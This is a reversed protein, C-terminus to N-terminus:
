AVRRFKQLWPLKHPAYLADAGASVPLEGVYLDGRSDVCLGHPVFVNGPRVVDEEGIRQLVEGGTTCVSVRAYPSHGPPPETMYRFHPPGGNKDILFGIESVYVLDDKDILVNNPRNPFGWMDVFAGDQTFIQIRSNERDAVYLLGRSDIAAGHPVNFQGPGAGPEGWSALLKGEASFRHVRANGYGDTVFLEGSEVVAVHAPM